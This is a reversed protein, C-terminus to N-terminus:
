TDSQVCKVRYVYKTWEEGYYGEAVVRLPFGHKQPLIKGNVSYALFVKDSLIDGIQFRQTRERDGRAGYIEVHNVDKGTGIKELISGLSIGKWHGYNAFYGRCILLIKKEISPLDLIERYTLNLSEKGYGKIELTWTNIDIDYDIEGMTKFLGLHTPELNRTDLAAPDEMILTSMSTGKPLIVKKVKAFAKQVLSLGPSLM